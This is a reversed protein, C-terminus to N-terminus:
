GGKLIYVDQYEVGKKLAKSHSSMYVDICNGKIVKGTDQAVRFGVGDIYVYSGLPIVKPDVAITVSNSVKAGSATIGDTKGCCEKCSCYYTIKFEGINKSYVASPEPTEKIYVPKYQYEVKTETIVKPPLTRAEVLKFTVTTCLILSLVLCTKLRNVQKVKIVESQFNSQEGEEGRLLSDGQDASRAMAYTFLAALGLITAPVLMM